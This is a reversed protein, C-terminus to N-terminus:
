ASWNNWNGSGGCVSEPEHAWSYYQCMASPDLPCSQAICISQLMPDTSVIATAPSCRYGFLSMLASGVSAVDSSSVGFSAAALGVQQVFYGVEAADLDMFRHEDAFAVVAVNKM